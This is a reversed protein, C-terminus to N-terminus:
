AKAKAKKYYSDLAVVAVLILGKIADQFYPYVNLLSFANSLVGLLMIGIISRLVSGKGGSLSTGGIVVASIVYMAADKAANPNATSLRAAQLIGGVSATLSTAVFIATKYFQVKIGTLKAVEYNGGTAFLNRGFRTKTLILQTAIIFVVYIIVPYTIGFLDGNGLDSFTENPCQIPSGNNLKLAIGFYATMAALTVIFSNIKLKTVLLGNILGIVAGLLITCLIAPVIGIVKILSVCIMGSFAAVSGISLDFEGAIICMTMGCSLIGYVSIQTLINFINASTMFTSNIFTMTITMLILLMAVKEKLIRRGITQFLKLM